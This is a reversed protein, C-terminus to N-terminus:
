LDDRFVVGNTILSKHLIVGEFCGNQPSLILFDPWTFATIRV